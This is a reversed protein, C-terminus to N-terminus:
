LEETDLEITDVLERIAKEYEDPPLNQKQIEAKRIEYLEWDM